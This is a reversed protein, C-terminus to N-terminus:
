PKQFSFLLDRYYEYQKKRNVLETSLATSLETFNDLIRAIDSQINFSKGLNDPYPIPVLIKKFREKSINFRTVGSATKSIESRM